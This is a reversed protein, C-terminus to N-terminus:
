KKKTQQRQRMGGRIPPNPSVKTYNNINKFSIPIYTNESSNYQVYDGRFAISTIEKQEWYIYESNKNDFLVDPLRAIIKTNPLTTLIGNDIKYNNAIKAVHTNYKEGQTGCIIYDGINVTTSNEVYKKGNATTAITDLRFTTIAISYNNPKLETLNTIICNQNNIYSYRFIDKYEYRIVNKQYKEYIIGNPSFGNNNPVYSIETIHTPTTNMKLNNIQAATSDINGKIIYKIPLLRRSTNTPTKYM